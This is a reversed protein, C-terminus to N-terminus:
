LQGAHGTYSYKTWLRLELQFQIFLNDQM